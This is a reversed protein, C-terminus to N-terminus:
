TRSTNSGVGPMLSATRLLKLDSIQDVYYELYTVVTAQLRPSVRKSNRDHYWIVRLIADNGEITGSSLRFLLFKTWQEGSEM